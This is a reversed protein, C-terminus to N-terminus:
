PKQDGREDFNGGTLCETVSPEADILGHRQAFHLTVLAADLTMLGALARQVAERVPLCEFSHVEGDQNHPQLDAPLPLDFCHLDELQLGEPINRHLRLTGAFRAQQMTGKGLGAEEFGERVLAQLPTQGDAVGGGILNDLLGPDTAKTFSRRAIWLHTPRGHADAVYGNAHAGLTLTGWFRMAAREAAGLRRGNNPHLLAFREGRWARVLGQECLAQNITALADDVREATLTVSAGNVRLWQPWARLADLHSHAVSGIPEGGLVFLVREQTLAARAAAILEALMPM